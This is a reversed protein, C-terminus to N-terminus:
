LALCRDVLAELDTVVELGERTRLWQVNRQHVDDHADFRNCFVVVPRLALAGITLRVVNITGLSADAVLIVLDPGIVRVLDASDGDGAIPSRVGGATEVFVVGDDPLNLDRALDAITFPELDLADAAMPPALAAPLWRAKPCVVYPDEGSAAGLVDADTSADGPAFSQVPKRAAVRVGRERLARVVAATVYTKGVDTGTGVVAVITL